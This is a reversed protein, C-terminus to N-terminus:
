SEPLPIYEEEDGPVKSFRGEAWDRKAQEIRESSSSVFNWWMHREGELPEGGILMLKSDKEATLSAALRYCADSLSHRPTSSSWRM